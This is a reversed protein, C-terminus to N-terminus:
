GATPTCRLMRVGDPVLEFLLREPLGVRCVLAIAAPSGAFQDVGSM